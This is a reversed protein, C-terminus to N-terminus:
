KLESAAGTHWLIGTGNNLNASLVLLADPAIPHGSVYGADPQVIRFTSCYCLLYM